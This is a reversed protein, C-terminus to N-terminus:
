YGGRLKCLQMMSTGQLLPPENAYDEDDPAGQFANSSNGSSMDGGMPVLPSASAWQTAFAAPQHPFANQQSSTPFNMFGYQSGGEADAAGFSTSM